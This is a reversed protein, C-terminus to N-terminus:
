RAQLESSNRTTAREQLTLVMALESTRHLIFLGIFEALLAKNKRLTETLVKSCFLSIDRM